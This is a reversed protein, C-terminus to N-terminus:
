GSAVSPVGPREGAPAARMRRREHRHAVVIVTVMLAAVDAFGLISAWPLEIDGADVNAFFSGLPTLLPWVVLLNSTLEYAIAYVVGLGLLFLMDDGAMGFGVHYLAYLVAAAGVGAAPGWMDSLRGQVFGRFFVSEFIGVVLAM